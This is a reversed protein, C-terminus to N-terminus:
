IDNCFSISGKRQMLVHSSCMKFSHFRATERCLLAKKRLVDMWECFLLFNLGCHNWEYFQTRWSGRSRYLTTTLGWASRAEVFQIGYNKLTRIAVNAESQWHCRKRNVVQYSLARVSLNYRIAFLVSWASPQSVVYVCLMIVYTTLTRWNPSRRM